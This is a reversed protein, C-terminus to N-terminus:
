LSEPRMARRRDHAKQIRERLQRACCRQKDTAVQSDRQVIRRSISQFVIAADPQHSDNTADCGRSRSDRYWARNREPLPDSAFHLGTLQILVASRRCAQRDKSEALFLISTVPDLLTGYHTKYTFKAAGPPVDAGPHVATWTAGFPGGDARWKRTSSHERIGAASKENIFSAM